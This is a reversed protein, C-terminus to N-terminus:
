FDILQYLFSYDTNDSVFVISLVGHEKDQRKGMSDGINSPSLILVPKIVIKRDRKRQWLLRLIQWIDSICAFHQQVELAKEWLLGKTWYLHIQRYLSSQLLELKHWV